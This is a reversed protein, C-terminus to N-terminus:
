KFSKTQNTTRVYRRKYAQVKRHAETGPCLRQYGGLEEGEEGEEEERMVVKITDVMLAEKVERDLAHGRALSPSANVELLWPRLEADLLVDFGFLEFAGPQSPVVDEVCMLSKLVVAVIENWVAATDIGHGKRLHQWLCSLRLKSGGVDAPPATRLPHHDPLPPGQGRTAHRTQISSNSVHALTNDLDQLQFPATCFRAFGETYLFAELTPQFSTVLVYLRLDFKYGNLLLPKSIYRQIVAPESYMVDRLDDVLKIGRGRSSEVPKLIWVNGSSSSSSSSATSDDRFAAVFSTYAQPLAFTQPMIYFFPRASSKTSASSSPQPHTGRARASATLRTMGGTSSSGSSSSLALHRTLHRVLLDKRTLERSRPIHNVHQHALLSAYEIRPKSWTWLLHWTEDQPASSPAETSRDDEDDDQAEGPWRRWEPFADAFVDAVISQVEPRFFSM